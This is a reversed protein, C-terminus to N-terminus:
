KKRKNKRKDGGTAKSGAKRSEKEGIGLVEKEYIDEQIWKYFNDTKYPRIGPRQVGQRFMNMLIKELPRGDKEYMAFLFFPLVQVVMLSAALTSGLVQRTLLYFPTGVAGALAFCILQRRTLNFMIKNKVKTLDKPAQVYAM